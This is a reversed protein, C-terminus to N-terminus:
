LFSQCYLCNSTSMISIVIERLRWCTEWSGLCKYRALLVGSYKPLLSMTKRCPMMSLSARSLTDTGQRIGLDNGGAGSWLRLLLQSAPLHQKEKISTIWEILGYYFINFVDMWLSVNWYHRHSVNVSTSWCPTQFASCSLVTHINQNCKTMDSYEKDLTQGRRNFCSQHARCPSCVWERACVCVLKFVCMACM